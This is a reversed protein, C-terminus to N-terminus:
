QIVNSYNMLIFPHNIVQLSKGRRWFLASRLALAGEALRSSHSTNKIGCAELMIEGCNPSYVSGLRTPVM